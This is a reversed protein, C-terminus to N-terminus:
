KNKKLFALLDAMDSISILKELGSPMASMNMAKLSKIDGRKITREISGNNRLTIAGPTETAIIGQITEGNKLEVMWLDYGSSISLNPALINALIADPSWNHITGLDPGLAIGEKGRIQHCLACEQRYVVQGKVVDGQLELAQQYAKNVEDDNNKTFLRRAQNRLKENSHLMLGVKRHFSLDAPQIKGTEIENLLMGVRDPNVLFTRM